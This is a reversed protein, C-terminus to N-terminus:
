AKIALIIVDLKWTLVIFVILAILSYFRTNSMTNVKDLLINLLKIYEEM